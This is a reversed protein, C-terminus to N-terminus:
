LPPRGGTRMRTVRMSCIADGLYRSRAIRLSRVPSFGLRAKECHPGLTYLPPSIFCIRAAFTVAVM